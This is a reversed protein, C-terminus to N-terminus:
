HPLGSLSLLRQIEPPLQPEPLQEECPNTKDHYLEGRKLLHPLATNRASLTM